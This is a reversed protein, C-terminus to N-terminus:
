LLLRLYQVIMLNRLQAVIETARLTSRIMFCLWAVLHHVTLFFYFWHKIQGIIENAWLFAIKTPLQHLILSKEGEGQETFINNNPGYEKLKVGAGRLVASSQVLLKQFM